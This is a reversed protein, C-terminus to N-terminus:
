GGAAMLPGNVERPASLGGNHHAALSFRRVPVSNRGAFSWVLDLRHDELREAAIVIQNFPSSQYIRDLDQLSGMVPSGAVLKGHKFVDDDVFGMLCVQRDHGGDLHKGAAAGLRGAGVILVRTIPIALRASAKRLLRFSMRSAVLLNFLLMTFILTTSGTFPLRVFLSLLLVGVSAMLAGNAFRVADALGTYRWMGRYVGTIIFAPYTAAFVWPLSRILTGTLQPPVAFDMRILFAGFYAAAILVVDLSGEVVRLKYGTHLILRAVRPVTGYAAGPPISDFTLDMMFLAILAPPLLVFPLALVLYAHPAVSAGVACSAAVLAVAWCVIAVSRDPLGLSLLRHHSHDLGRRSIPRGIALRTATVISTDLIPVLMVLLPFVAVTLRSNSSISGAQLAFIGLLFGVPLAGADGMFISAPHFNYVLFGCLAGGLALAWVALAPHHHLIATVAVALTTVIGIGTALGDLGDILNFANTTGILWLFVLAFGLWSNHGFLLPPAAILVGLTVAIQAALKQGPRMVLVDDILGVATLACTGALIWWPLHGVLALGGLFATAIAVGGLMATPKTHRSDSGPTAMVGFRRALREAWAVAGLAIVFAIAPALVLIFITANM